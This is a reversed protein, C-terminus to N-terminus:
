GENKHERKGLIKQTQKQIQTPALFASESLRFSGMLLTVVGAGGWEGEGALILLM